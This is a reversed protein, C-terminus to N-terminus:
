VSALRVRPPTYIVTLISQFEQCESVVGVMKLPHRPLMGDLDGIMSEEQYLVNYCPFFKAAHKDGKRKFEQQCHLISLMVKDGIKFPPDPARHVNVHHAQFIRALLLNDKAEVVHTHLKTIVEPARVSEDDMLSPSSLVTPVLPPIIQPSCGIHLQFNSFRTSANLSHM